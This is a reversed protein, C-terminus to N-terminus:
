CFIQLVYNMDGSVSVLRGNSTIAVGRPRQSMGEISHLLNGEPSFVRISDGWYDSLVFNYLPDLCFFRPDSVDMERGCTILSHLKDGELTLVLICPNNRPCLVYLLDRSIIVDFPQSISYHTINYLHNLNTDHVCIRVNSSDLIFVRGIPDTILQRPCSFEGNNSGWGGIERVLSMDTLSFRSVTHNWCSVYVNDGHIAIGCPANLQGAGLQCIFEGTESFIYIKDTVVLIQNTAEDIAVGQALNNLNTTITSTQFIDYRPVGVPMHELYIRKGLERVIPYRDAM